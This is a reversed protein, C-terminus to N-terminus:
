KEFNLNTQWKLYARSSDEKINWVKEWDWNSYTAQIKMEAETKSEFSITRTTSGVDKVDKDAYAEKEWLCKTNNINATDSLNITGAFGGRVTANLPTDVATYVQDFSITGRATAYIKGVFGGVSVNASEIAGVSYSNIVNVKSNNLVNISGILGGVDETATVRIDAYTQNIETLKTPSIDGMLGGVNESGVVTGTAYSESVVGGHLTGILGGVEEKGTVAVNASSNVVSGTNFSGVLGGISNGSGNVIGQVRCNSVVGSCSGALAGTYEGGNVEVNVLVVESLIANSSVQGFLGCYRESDRNIKLNSIQYGRGEFVGGFESIPKWGDGSSYGSMDIDASLKYYGNPNQRILEMDQPTNIYVTVDSPPVKGNALAAIDTNSHYKRGNYNVGGVNIVEGTTYNVIYYQDDKNLTSTLKNVDDPTLYYYGYRYEERKGNINLALPEEELSIGVLEVNDVGSRYQVGISSVLTSLNAVDKSIMKIEELQATVVANKIMAGVVLLIVFLLVVIGMAVIKMTKKSKDEVLSEQQVEDEQILDKLKVGM